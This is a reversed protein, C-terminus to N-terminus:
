AGGNGKLKAATALVGACTCIAGVVGALVPGDQVPQGSLAYSLMYASYVAAVCTMGGLGLVTSDKM